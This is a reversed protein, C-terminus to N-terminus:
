TERKLGRGRQYAGDGGGGGWLGILERTEAEMEIFKGAALSAVSAPGKPALDLSRRCQLRRPAAAELRLPNGRRAAAAAGTAGVVAGRAVRRTGLGLCGPM